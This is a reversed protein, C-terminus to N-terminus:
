AIIGDNQGGLVQSSNIKQQYLEKALNFLGGREYEVGLGSDSVLANLIGLGVAMEIAKKAKEDRVGLSSILADNSVKGDNMNNLITGLVMVTQTPELIKTEFLALKQTTPINQMLADRVYKAIVEIKMEDSKVVVKPMISDLYIINNSIYSPFDEKSMNTQIVVVRNKLGDRHTRNSVQTIDARRQLEIFSSFDGDYIKEGKLIGFIIFENNLSPIGSGELILLNVYGANVGRYSRDRMYCVLCRFIPKLPNLAQQESFNFTGDTGMLVTEFKEATIRRKATKADTKSNEYIVALFESFFLDVHLKGMICAAFDKIKRNKEGKTVYKVLLYKATSPLNCENITIRKINDFFVDELYNTTASVLICTRERFIQRFENLMKRRFAVLSVESYHTHGDPVFASIYMFGGSKDIFDIFQAYYKLAFGLEEAKIDDLKMEECPLKIPILLKHNEQVREEREMWKTILNKADGAKQETDIKDAYDEILQSLTTTDNNSYMFSCEKALAEISGGAVTKTLTCYEERGDGLLKILEEFNNKKNFRRDLDHIYKKSKEKTQYPLVTSYPTATTARTTPLGGSVNTAIKFDIVLDNHLLQSVLYDSEDILLTGFRVLPLEHIFAFPAAVLISDEYKAIIMNALKHPCTNPLIDHILQADIYDHTLAMKVEEDAIDKAQCNKINRCIGEERLLEHGKLYLFKKKPCVNKSQRKKAAEVFERTSSHSPSVYLVNGEPEFANEALWHTKGSALPAVILASEKKVIAEQLAENIKEGNKNQFNIFEKESDM